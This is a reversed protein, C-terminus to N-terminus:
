CFLAFFNSVGVEADAFNPYNMAKYSDNIADKSLGALAAIIATTIIDM